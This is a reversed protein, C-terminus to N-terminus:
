VHNILNNSNIVTQINGSTNLIIKCPLTGFNEYDQLFDIKVAVTSKPLTVGSINLITLNTSVTQTNQFEWFGMVLGGYQILSGQSGRTPVDRVYTQAYSFSGTKTAVAPITVPPAM